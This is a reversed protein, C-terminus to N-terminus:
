AARQYERKVQRWESRHKLLPRSGTRLWKARKPYRENDLLFAARLAKCRKGSM